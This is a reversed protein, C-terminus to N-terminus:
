HKIVFNLNNQYEKINRSNFYSMSSKLGDSFRSLIQEISENEYDLLVTKGEIYKPKKKYTNQIQFSASGHYLKYFKGDRKILEAPSNSASALASGMMVCDAGLAMAKCFDQPEKIGGDAIIAPGDKLKNKKCELILSAMPHYVGTANKTTCANGGAIGVRVGIVNPLKSAWRFTDVSAVNGVIFEVDTKISLLKEITKQVVLSAGNAVDICFLNCGNSSLAEFREVYNDNVGIAAGLLKNKEFEELQEQIDCFRHLIGFAGLNILANGFDGDCVDKMPPAIIPLKLKRSGITVTTDVEERSAITSVVNPVLSIDCFDLKSVTSM